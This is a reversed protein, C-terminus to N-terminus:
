RYSDAEMIRAMRLFSNKPVIFRPLEKWENVPAFSGAQEFPKGLIWAASGVPTCFLLLVEPPSVGM